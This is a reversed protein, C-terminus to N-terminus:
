ETKEYKTRVVISNEKHTLEVSNRWAKLMAEITGKAFQEQYDSGYTIDITITIKEQKKTM